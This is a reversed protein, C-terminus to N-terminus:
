AFIAIPRPIPILSQYEGPLIARESFERREVTHKRATEPVRRTPHRLDIRLSQPEPIRPLGVGRPNQLGSFVDFRDGPPRAVGVNREGRLHASEYHRVHLHLGGPIALREHMLHAPSNRVNQWRAIQSM